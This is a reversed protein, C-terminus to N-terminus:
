RLSDNTDIIDSISKTKENYLDSVFNFIVVYTSTLIELIDENTTNYIELYFSGNWSNYEVGYFYGKYTEALTISDDNIDFDLGKINDIIQQQNM